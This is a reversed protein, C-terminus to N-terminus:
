YKMLNKKDVIRILPIRGQWFALKTNWDTLRVLLSYEKYFNGNDRRVNQEKLTSTMVFEPQTTAAQDLGALEENYCVFKENNMLGEELMIAITEALYGAQSGRSMTDVKVKKVNVIRRKGPVEYRKSNEDVKEIVDAVFAQIDKEAIAVTDETDEGPRVTRTRETACGSLVAATVVAALTLMLHKM